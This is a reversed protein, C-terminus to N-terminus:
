SIDSPSQVFDEEDFGLQELSKSNVIKLKSPKNFTAFFVQYDNDLHMITKNSGHLGFRSGVALVGDVMEKVDKDPIDTAVVTLSFTGPKFVNIIRELLAEYDCDDDLGKSTDFNNGTEFSAFNCSPQPTVHITWYRDGKLGNMSYGCPSFLVPDILSGPILGSIGSKETVIKSRRKNEDSDIADTSTTYFQKLVEPDMDGMLVEFTFHCDKGIIKSRPVTPLPGDTPNWTADAASHLHRHDTVYLYWHLSNTPGLIFGSGHVITDLFEVEKRWSGHPELQEHPNAFNRRSYWLDDVLVLGCERAVKLIDEIARLLTTTGCTKLIIKHPFVFLSSESLVYADFEKNSKMSLISCKVLELIDKWVGVKLSRLSRSSKTPCWVIELLKEPGEFFLDFLQPEPHHCDSIRQKKEKRGVSHAMAGSVSM